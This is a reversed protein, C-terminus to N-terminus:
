DHPPSTISLAPCCPGCGGASPKGSAITWISENSISGIPQCIGHVHNEGPQHHAGCVLFYMSQLHGNEQTYQIYLNGVVGKEKTNRLSYKSWLTCINTSIFCPWHIQGSRQLTCQLKVPSPLLLSLPHAHVGWGWWGPSIKGVDSFTRWFAATAVRHVRHNQSDEFLSERLAYM